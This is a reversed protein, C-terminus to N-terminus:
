ILRLIVDMMKKEKKTKELLPICTERGFIANGNTHKWHFINILNRQLHKTNEGIKGVNMVFLRCLISLEKEATLCSTKSSICVYLELVKDYVEFKQKEHQCPHCVCYRNEWSKAKWFQPGPSGAVGHLQGRTGQVSFM